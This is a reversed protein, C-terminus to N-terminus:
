ANAGARRRRTERHMIYLGSGAIIAMGLAAWLDPLDGFVVFGSATMWIMITFTFPVVTSVEAVTYARILCYHGIAGCLGMLVMLGWGAADPPTWVFPVAVGCVVTGAVATYAISTLASDSQSVRRTFIQYLAYASAASLPFLAAADIIGLGPRIIILAGAFGALVGAWRRIGVREGLLPASLVTVLIPTVNIIASSEALPLLTFGTFYLASAVLLMISRGLQMQLNATRLIGPFRVNLLLALLVLHFTYRAWVVQLVDHSQGLIKACTNTGTFFLTAVIVWLIGRATSNLGSAPATGM